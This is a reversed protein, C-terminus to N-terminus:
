TSMQPSQSSLLHLLGPWQCHTQVQELPVMEESQPATIQSVPSLLAPIKGPERDQGSLAWHTSPSVLDPSAGTMLHTWVTVTLAMTDKGPTTLVLAWALGQMTMLDLTVEPAWLTLPRERIMIVMALVMGAVKRTGRTGLDMAKCIRPIGVVVGKELVVEEQDQILRIGTQSTVEVEVTKAELGSPAKVTGQIEDMVRIGVLGLLTMVGAQEVRMVKVWIQGTM